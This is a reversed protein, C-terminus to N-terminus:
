WSFPIEQTDLPLTESEKPDHALDTLNAVLADEQGHGQFGYWIMPPIRLLCYNDPRGLLYESVQGHTPSQERADYIILRIRGMPVTFHQTILRHRKWGKIVGAHILSFYIEGFRSFLPSDERLMHLVAGRFDEIQLLPQKVVGNISIPIINLGM